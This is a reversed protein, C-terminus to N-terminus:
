KLLNRFIHAIIDCTWGNWLMKYRQSDSVGETYWVKMTQLKECETPTLKRVIGVREIVGNPTSARLTYWKQSWFSNWFNSSPTYQTWCPLYIVKPDKYDRACITPSKDEKWGQQEFERSWPAYAIM